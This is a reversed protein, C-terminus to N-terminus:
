PMRILVAAFVAMIMTLITIVFLISIAVAAVVFLKKLKGLSEMMADADNNQWARRIASASQLVLAGIWIAAGGVIISTAFSCIIPFDIGSRFALIFFTSFIGIQIFSFVIIMIGTFRMWGTHQGLPASLRSISDAGLAPPQDPRIGSPSEAYPQGPM